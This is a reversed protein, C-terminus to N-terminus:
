RSLWLNFTMTQPTPSGNAGPAGKDDPLTWLKAGHVNKDYVVATTQRVLFLFNLNKAMEQQVIAYQAKQEEFNDTTRAKDMAAVIKDNAGNPGGNADLGLRTFNLSFEGVKKAPSAIFVYERDIHPSGFLIFGTAEYNGALADAILKLQEQPNLTVEIGAEKAQAQLVQAVNQVEPVPIINATFSLPKGYKAEYEKAKAKAKELNHTPYDPAKAYFPSNDSFPGYAPPFVGEYAQESLAEVDGAYAVAERAIPDDFPPKATNLGIFIKSGDGAKDSFIQIDTEKDTARQTYGLIQAADNTEFINVTGSELSKGRSQIDPLPQFEINDLYPFGKRWYSPNKKVDLNKNSTWQEFIFPGSGVPKRNGDDTNVTEESAIVGVQATLIHPFTSWPKSMKVKVTLSGETSIGGQAVFAMAEGTLPSSKQADLNLKVLNADVPKGNHLSVGERLFITWETFDANHEFKKALYPQPQLKDDYAALPDMISFGVIYTSSAWRGKQPSFGDSEANLGYVIKGGSKPEGANENTLDVAITGKPTTDGGSGTGTDAGKCGAAVLALGLMLAIGVTWTRRGTANDGNHM